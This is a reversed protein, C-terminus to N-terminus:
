AGLNKALMGISASIIRLQEPSIMADVKEPTSVQIHEPCTPDYMFRLSVRGVTVTVTEAM